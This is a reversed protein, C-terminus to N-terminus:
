KDKIILGEANPTLAPPAGWSLTPDPLDQLSSESRIRRRTMELEEEYKEDWTKFKKGVTPSIPNYITEFADITDLFMGNVRDKFKVLFAGIGVIAFLNIVSLFILIALLINTM